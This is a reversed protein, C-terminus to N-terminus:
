EIKNTVKKERVESALYKSNINNANLSIWRRALLNVVIASLEDAEVPAAHGAAHDGLVDVRVLFLPEGDQRAFGV